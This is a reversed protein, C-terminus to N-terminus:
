RAESFMWDYFEQSSYVKQRVNHGMDQYAKIKALKGGLRRIADVMRISREAPVVKDRGGAFAYVPVTALNFAWKELDPSVDKPGRPGIGGVIPAIAAFREPCTGRWLWAGYGGMSSGTVYIKDSDVPFKEIVEDLLLNLDKEQWTGREACHKTRLCQPVVVFCPGKEFQHIGLILAHAQEGVRHLDSGIAGGGHLYILLSANDESNGNTKFVLYEPNLCTTREARKPSLKLLQPNIPESLLPAWCFVFLSLNLYIKM